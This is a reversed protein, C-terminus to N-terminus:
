ADSWPGCELAAVEIAVEDWTVQEILPVLIPQQAADKGVRTSMLSPDPVMECRWLDLRDADWCAGITPLETTEGWAHAHVALRLEVLRNAGLFSLQSALRDIWQAAREGHNLDTGDGFRMFDHLIAFALVTLGDIKADRKALALGNMAVRMSHTEGHLASHWSTGYSSAANILSTLPSTGAHAKGRGPALKRALEPLLDESKGRVWIDGPSLFDPRAPDIAFVRLGNSRAMSVVDFEDRSVGCVLLSRADHLVPLPQARIDVVNIAGAAALLNDFNATGVLGCTGSAELDAIAFHSSNPSARDIASQFSFISRALGDPEVLFTDLLRHDPGLLNCFVESEMGGDGVFPFIGSAASIGAGVYAVFRNETALSTAAEIIGVDPADHIRQANADGREEDIEPELVVIAALHDLVLAAVRKRLALSPEGFVVKVAALSCETGQPTVPEVTLFIDGTPFHLGGVEPRARWGRSMATVRIEDIVNSRVDREVRAICVFILTPQLYDDGSLHGGVAIVHDARGVCHVFEGVDVGALRNLDLM